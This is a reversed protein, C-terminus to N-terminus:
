FPTDSDTTAKQLPPLVTKVNAFITDENKQTHKIEVRCPKLLIEEDDIDDGVNPLKGTIAILWKGLKSNEHIKDSCMGSVEEGDLEDETELKFIFKFCSGFKREEKSICIPFANYTGKPVIVPTKEVTGLHSM